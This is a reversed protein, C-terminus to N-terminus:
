EDRPIRTTVFRPSALIVHIRLTAQMVKRNTGRQLIELDHRRGIGCVTHVTVPLDSGFNALATCGGTTYGNIKFSHRPETNQRRSRCNIQFFDTCVIYAITSVICPEEHTRTDRLHAHLLIRHVRVKSLQDMRTERAIVRRHDTATDSADRALANGISQLIIRFIRTVYLVPRNFHTRIVGPHTVIIGDLLERPVHLHNDIGCLSMPNGRNDGTHNRCVRHVRAPLDGLFEQVRDILQDLVVVQNRSRVEVVIEQRM